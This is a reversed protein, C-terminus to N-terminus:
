LTDESSAGSMAPASADAREIVCAGLEEGRKCTVVAEALGVLWWLAAVGLVSGAAALGVAWGWGMDQAAAFAGPRRTVESAVCAFLAVTDYILAAAAIGTSAARWAAWAGYGKWNDRWGKWDRGLSAVGPAAGVSGLRGLVLLGLFTAAGVAGVLRVALFATACAALALTPPTRRAAFLACAGVAPLLLPLLAPPPPNPPLRHASAYPGAFLSM